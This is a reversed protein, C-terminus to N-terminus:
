DCRFQQQPFYLMRCEIKTPGEKASNAIGKATKVDVIGEEQLPEFAKL